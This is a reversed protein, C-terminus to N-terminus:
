PRFRAGYNFSDELEAAVTFHAVADPFDGRRYAIEAALAHM